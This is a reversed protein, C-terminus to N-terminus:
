RAKRLALCGMGCIASVVFLWIILNSEGTKPVDDYAGSPASTTPAATQASNQTQETSATNAAPASGNTSYDGADTMIGSSKDYYFTGAKFNYYEKIIGAANSESAYNVTGGVSVTCRVTNGETAIMRLNTVNDNFTCRTKNYVYANTINGSIASANTETEDDENKWDKGLVYCEDVGGTSIVIDSCNITLNSLHANVTVPKNGTKHDDNPLVVLIDGDKVKESGENLYYPERGEYDDLWEGVQLRWDNKEVDFKLYFTLPEEAQVPLANVNVLLATLVAATTLSVLKKIKKM